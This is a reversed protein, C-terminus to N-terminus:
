PGSGTVGANSLSSGRQSGKRASGAKWFSQSFFCSQIEVTKRPECNADNPTAEGLQPLVKMTKQSGPLDRKALNEAIDRWIERLVDTSILIVVVQFSM